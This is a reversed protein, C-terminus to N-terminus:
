CRSFISSAGIVVVIILYILWYIYSRMLWRSDVQSIFLDKKVKM